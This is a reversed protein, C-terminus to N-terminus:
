RDRTVMKPKTKGGGESLTEVTDGGALRSSASM